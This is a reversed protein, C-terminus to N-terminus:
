RRTKEDEIERRLQDLTQLRTSLHSELGDIQEKVTALDDQIGKLGGGTKAKGNGEELERLEKRKYDLLQELERKVLAPKSDRKGGHRRNAMEEVKAM